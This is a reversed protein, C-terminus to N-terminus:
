PVDGLRLRIDRLEGTLREAGEDDTGGLGYDVEALRLSASDTLAVGAPTLSALVARRDTPHERREVYGAARLQDIVLTVTTPHVLLAKSLQGLPRAHGPSVRLTILILYGTRSLGEKRLVEDVRGGVLAMTRLLSMLAVFQPVKPENLETWQTRTRDLSDIADPDAVATREM